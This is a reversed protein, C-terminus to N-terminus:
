GKFIRGQPLHSWIKLICVVTEVVDRNPMCVVCPEPSPGIKILHTFNEIHILKHENILELVKNRAKPNNIEVYNDYAGWCWGM